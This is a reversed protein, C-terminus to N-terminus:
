KLIKSCQSTNLVLVDLFITLEKNFKMFTLFLDTFKFLFTIQACFLYNLYVLLLIM